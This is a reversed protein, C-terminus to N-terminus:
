DVRGATVIQWVQATWGSHRSPRVKRELVWYAVGPQKSLARRQAHAHTEDRDCCAKADDRQNRLGGVAGSRRIHVMGSRCKRPLASQGV